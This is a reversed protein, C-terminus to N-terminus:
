HYFTAWLIVGLLLLQICHLLLLSIYICTERFTSVLELSSYSIPLEDGYELDM